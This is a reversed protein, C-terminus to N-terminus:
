HRRRQCREFVYRDLAPHQLDMETELIPLDLDAGHGHYFEPKRVMDMDIHREEEAYRFSSGGRRVQDLIAIITRLWDEYSACRDTANGEILWIYLYDLLCTAKAEGRAERWCFWSLSYAFRAEGVTGEFPASLWVFFAYAPDLVNINETNSDLLYHDYRAM